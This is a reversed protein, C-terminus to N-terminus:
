NLPLQHIRLSDKVDSVQMGETSIVPAVGTVEVTSGLSGVEMVPDVTVTQGVEVKLTGEFKRFGTAEIALTYDGPAVAGFYYVGATSSVTTRVVGTQTNTLTAKARPILARSADLVTGQLVGNGTQANLPYVSLACLLLISVIGIFAKQVNM